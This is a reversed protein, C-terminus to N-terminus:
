YIASYHCFSLISNLNLFNIKNLNFYRELQPFLCLVKIVGHWNDIGCDNLHLEELNISINTTTKETSNNNFECCDIESYESYPFQTRSLHLVRLSPASNIIIQLTSFPM